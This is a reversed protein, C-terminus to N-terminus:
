PLWGSVKHRYQWSFHIGGSLNLPFGGASWFGGAGGTQILCIRIGNVPSYPVCNGVGTAGAPQGCHVSGVTPARDVATNWGKVTDYVNHVSTDLTIGTPPPIVYDGTGATPSGADSSQQYCGDVIVYEGDRSWWQKDMVIASGKVPPTGGSTIAFTVAGGDARATKAYHNLIEWNAGNSEIEFIEGTTYMKVSGDAIGGITQSSTTNITYVQTLSTGGHIFKYRKGAIGVATPLVVNGTAGSLKITGDSSLIAENSPASVARYLQRVFSGVLAKKTKNSDSTDVLPFYDDDAASVSTLGTFIDDKLMALLVNQNALVFNKIQAATVRYSQIGDDSPFNLDSSVDDRLALETIKKQAM